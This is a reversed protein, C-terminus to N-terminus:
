ENDKDKQVRTSGSDRMVITQGTIILNELPVDHKVQRILYRGRSMATPIYTRFVNRNTTAADYVFKRDSSFNTRGDTKFAMAAGKNATETHVMYEQFLKNTDPSNGSEPNFTIKVPVGAILNGSTYTATYFDSPYDATFEFDYQMINLQTTDFLNSSMSTYVLKVPYINELVYGGPGFKYMELYVTRNYFFQIFNDFQEFKYFTTTGFPSNTITVTQEMSIGYLPQNAVRLREKFLDKNFIGNTNELNVSIRFRPKNTVPNNAKNTLSGSLNTLSDYQDKANTIISDTHQERSVLYFTNNTQSTENQYYYNVAFKRTINAATAYDYVVKSAYTNAGNDPVYAIIPKQKYAVLNRTQSDEMGDIVEETMFSWQRTLTNFIYTGSKVNLEPATENILTCYYLNKSENVFAKIRAKPSTKILDRIDKQIAESINELEGGRISIFGTQDLYIIENNIEKISGGAQCYSTTSVQFVQINPVDQLANRNGGDIVRFVGDEKFIYLDDSNAAMGIIKKDNKGILNYSSVTTIEPVNRRSIWVENNSYLENNNLVALKTFTINNIEPAFQHYGSYSSVENTEDYIGNIMEIVQGDPYVIEVQGIGSGKRLAARIGKNNLEKNFSNIISWAYDDLYSGADKQQSGLFLFNGTKEFVAVPTNDRNRHPKFTFIPEILGATGAIKAENYYETVSTTNLEIENLRPNAYLYLPLNGETTAKLFWINYIKGSLSAITSVDVIKRDNEFYTLNVNDFTYRNAVATDTTISTYNFLAHGTSYYNGTGDTTLTQILMVGPSEFNKRDFKKFGTLIIKNKATDYFIANGSGATIAVASAGFDHRADSECQGTKTGEIMQPVFGTRTVADQFSNGENITETFQLYKDDLINNKDTNSYFGNRNYFPTTQISVYDVKNTKSTLKLTLYPREFLTAGFRRAKITGTDVNVLTKMPISDIIDPNVSNLTNIIGALTSDTVPPGVLPTYTVGGLPISNVEVNKNNLIASDLFLKRNLYDVAMTPAVQFCFQDTAISNNASVPTFLFPSLKVQEARPQKIVSFTGILPTEVSAHVYFDKYNAVISSKPVIINTNAAGDVNSDTYIKKGIENLSDDNLEIPININRIFYRNVILSKSNTIYFKFTKGVTGFDGVSLAPGGSSTALQFRNPFGSVTKFYYTSTTNLDGPLDSSLAPSGDANYVKLQVQLNDTLGHNAITQFTAPSLSVATFAAEQSVLTDSLTQGPSLVTPTLALEDTIANQAQFFYNYANEVRSLQVPFTNIYNYNPDALMKDIYTPSENENWSFYEVDYKGSLVNSNRSNKLVVKPVNRVYFSILYQINPKLEAVKDLQIKAIWRSILSMQVTTGSTPFGSIDVLAGTPTTSIQFSTNSVNRVYYPISTNFGGPVSGSFKVLELNEFYVDSNLFTGSRVVSPNEYFDNRTKRLVGSRLLGFDTESDTYLYQKNLKIRGSSIQKTLKTNISTVSFPTEIKNHDYEWIEVGIESNSAFVNQQLAPLATDDFFKILATEVTNVYQPYSDLTKYAFGFYSKNSSNEAFTYKNTLTNQALLRNSDTLKAPLALSVKSSVRLKAPLIDNVDFASTKFQVRSTSYVYGNYLSANTTSKNNPIYSVIDNVALEPITSNKRYIDYDNYSYIRQSNTPDLTFTFVTDFRILDYCQFFEDPMAKNIDEIKTRYLIIGFKRGNNLKTFENFQQYIENGDVKSNFEFEINVIGDKGTNYVEYIKSPESEYIVSEKDSYGMERYFTYRFACKYGSTLWNEYVDSTTISTLLEPFPPWKVTFYRNKTPVFVDDINSEAIGDETQLYLSENTKFISNVTSYPLENFSLLKGSDKDLQYMRYVNQTGASAIFNSYANNRTDPVYQNVAQKVLYGSFLEDSSNSFEIFKFFTSSGNSYSSHFIHKSQTDVARNYNKYTGAVYGLAQNASGKGVELYRESTIRLKNNVMSATWAGGSGTNITNIITSAAVLTGNASASFTFSTGNQDGFIIILVNNKATTGTGDYFTIGTSIDVTGDIFNPKAAYDILSALSSNYESTNIDFGHRAQVKGRQEIVVNEAETLTNSPSDVPNPETLLGSVGPIYQKAM